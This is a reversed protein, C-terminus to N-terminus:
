GESGNSGETEKRTSSNSCFPAFSAFDPAASASILRGLRQETKETEKQQSEQKAIACTQEPLVDEGPQFSVAGEIQLPSSLRRFIVGHYRPMAWLRSAILKGSHNGAALQVAIKRCNGVACSRDLESNPAYCV